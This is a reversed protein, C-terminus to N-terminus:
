FRSRFLDVTGMRAVMMCFTAKGVIGKQATIHPPHEGKSGPQYTPPKRFSPITLGVDRFDM